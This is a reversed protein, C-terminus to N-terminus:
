GLFTYGSKATATLNTTTGYATSGGGTVTGGTTSATSGSSTRTVATATVTYNNPTWRAWLTQANTKNWTRASAGTSTYYQTGGSTASTDYYGQFSHGTRSPMTASPM